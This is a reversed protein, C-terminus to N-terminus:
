KSHKLGYIASGAIAGLFPTVSISHPPADITFCSYFVLLLAAIAGILICWFALRIKGM